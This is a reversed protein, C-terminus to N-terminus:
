QLALRFSRTLSLSVPRVGEMGEKRSCLRLLVSHDVRAVRGRGVLVQDLALVRQVALGADVGQALVLIQEVYALQGARNGM